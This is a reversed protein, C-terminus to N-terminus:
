AEHSSLELKVIESSSFIAQFDESYVKLSSHCFLIHLEYILLCKNRVMKYALFDLISTGASGADSSLETGQKCATGEQQTTM